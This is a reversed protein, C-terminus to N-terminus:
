LKQTASRRRETMVSILLFLNSSNGFLYELFHMPYSKCLKQDSAWQESIKQTSEKTNDPEERILKKALADTQALRSVLLKELGAPKGDSRAM